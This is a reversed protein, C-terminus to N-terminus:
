VVSCRTLDRSTRSRNGYVRAPECLAFAMGAIVVPRMRRCGGCKPNRGHFRASCAFEESCVVCVCRSMRQTPTGTTPTFITLSINLIDAGVV